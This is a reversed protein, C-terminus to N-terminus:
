CVPAAGRCRHGVAGRGSETMSRLLLHPTSHRDHPSPGDIMVMTDTAEVTGLRDVGHVVYGLTRLQAALLKAAPENRGRGAVHVREALFLVSCFDSVEQASLGQGDVAICNSPM